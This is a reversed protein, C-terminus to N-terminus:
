KGYTILFFIWYSLTIKDPNKIMKGTILHRRPSFLLCLYVQKLPM